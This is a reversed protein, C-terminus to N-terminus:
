YKKDFVMMSVKPLYRFEVFDDIRLVVKVKSVRVKLWNRVLVSKNGFRSVGEYLNNEEM